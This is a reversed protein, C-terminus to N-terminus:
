NRAGEMPKGRGFPRDLGCAVKLTGKNLKTKRSNKAYALASEKAFWALFEVDCWAMLLIWWPPIENSNLSRSCVRHFDTSINLKLVAWRRVIASQERSHRSSQISLSTDDSTKIEHFLEGKKLINKGKWITWNLNLRICINNTNKKILKIPFHNNLSQKM